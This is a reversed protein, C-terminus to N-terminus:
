NFNKGPTAYRTRSRADQIPPPPSIKPPSYFPPFAFYYRGSTDVQRTESDMTSRPHPLLRGADLNFKETAEPRRASARNMLLTFGLGTSILGPMYPLRAPSRRAFPNFSQNRPRASTRVPRLLYCSSVEIIATDVAATAKASNTDSIFSQDRGM